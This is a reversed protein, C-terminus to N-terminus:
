SQALRALEQDVDRPISIAAADAAAILLEASSRVDLFRLAREVAERLKPASRDPRSLQFKQNEVVFLWRRAVMRFLCLAWPSQPIKAAARLMAVQYSLLEGASLAKSACCALSMLRRKDGNQLSLDATISKAAPVASSEDGDAVALGTEMLALSAFLGSSKAGFHSELM